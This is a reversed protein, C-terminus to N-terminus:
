IAEIKAQLEAIKESFSIFETDFADLTTDTYAKAEAVGAAVKGDAYSKAETLQTDAYAKAEAVGATVETKDAKGSTAANVYEETAYGTLDVNATTGLKEWGQEETFGYEATEGDEDILYINGPVASSPLADVSDVKGVIKFANGLEAVKDDVYTKKAYDEMGAVTQYDELTAEIDAITVAEEPLARAAIKGDVTIVRHNEIFALQASPEMGMLSAVLASPSAYESTPIYVLGNAANIAIGGNSAHLVINDLTQNNNPGLNNYDAGIFIGDLLIELDPLLDSAIKANNNLYVFDGAAPTYDSVSYMGPFKEQSFRIKGDVDQVGLYDVVAGSAEAVIGDVDVEPIEPIEPIQDVTAVIKKDNGNQITVVGSVSNLTLPLNSTGVDVVNWKNVMILNHNDAGGEVVFGGSAPTDTSSGLIMENNKLLISQTRGSADSVYSVKNNLEGKVEVVKSALADVNTIIGSLAANLNSM